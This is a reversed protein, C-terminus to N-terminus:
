PYILAQLRTKEDLATAWEVSGGGPWAELGCLCWCLCGGLSFVLAAIVVLQARMTRQAQKKGRRCVGRRGVGGQGAWIDANPALAKDRM